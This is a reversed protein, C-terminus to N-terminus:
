YIKYFLDPNSSFNRDKKKLDELAKTRSFKYKYLQIKHKGMYTQSFGVTKLYGWAMPIICDENPNLNFNLNYDLIEFFFFIIIM